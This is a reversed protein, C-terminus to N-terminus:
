STCYDFCTILVRGWGQCCGAALGSLVNYFGAAVRYVWGCDQYFWAAVRTGNVDEFICFNHNFLKPQLQISKHQSQSREATNGTSTNAPTQQNRNSNGKPGVVKLGARPGLSPAERLRQPGAVTCRRLWTM